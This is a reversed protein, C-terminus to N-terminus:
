WTEGSPCRQSSPNTTWGDLTELGASVTARAKPRRPGITLSGWGCSSAMEHSHRTSSNPDAPEPNVTKPDLISAYDTEVFAIMGPYPNFRWFRTWLRADLEDGDTLFFKQDRLRKRSDASRILVSSGQATFSFWRHNTGRQYEIIAERFELKRDTIRQLYQQAARDIMRPRVFWMGIAALGIALLVGTLIRFFYRQSFRM